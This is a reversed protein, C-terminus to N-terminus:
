AVSEAQALARRRARWWLWVGSGAFLLLSLAILDAWLWDLPGLFKGTHLSKMIKKVEVGGQELKRDKMANYEGMGASALREMAAAPMTFAAWKMGAADGTWAGAKGAAFLTDGTGVVTEVREAGPLLAKNEGQVNIFRLGKDTAAVVGGEVAQLDLAKTEASSAVPTFRGAQGRSLGGDRHALWIQGDDALAAARIATPAEHAKEAKEAKEGKDAKYAKDAKEPRDAKAIREAKEAKEAKEHKEAKHAKDASEPKDAKAPKDPQRAAAPAGPMGTDLTKWNLGGDDSTLVGDGVAVVRQGLGSVQRFSGEAVRRAESGDAAVRWLGDKAAAIVAGDVPQFDRVEAAILRRPAADGDLQWLGGKGGVWRLLEGQATFARVSDKGTITKAGDKHKEQKGDLVGFATPIRFNLADKHVLFVTSVAIIVLPVAAILGIWLHWDRLTGAKLKSM